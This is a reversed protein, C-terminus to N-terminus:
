VGLHNVLNLSHRTGALYDDICRLVFPSRLRGSNELEHRSLWLAQLIGDDLVANVDQATVKGCFATRM